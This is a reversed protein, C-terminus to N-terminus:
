HRWSHRNNMGTHGPKQPWILSQMTMSKGVLQGIVTNFSSAKESETFFIIQYSIKGHNTQQMIKKMQQNIKDFCNGLM